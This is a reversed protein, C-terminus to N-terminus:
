PIRVASPSGCRAPWSGPASVRLATLLPAITAFSYTGAGDTKTSAMPEVAVALRSVTAGALPQGDVALITGTITNPGSRSQPLAPVMLAAVILAPTTIARFPDAM